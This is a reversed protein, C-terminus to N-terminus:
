FSNIRRMSDILYMRMKDSPYEVFNIFAQRFQKEASVFESFEDINRGMYQEYITPLNEITSLLEIGFESDTDM